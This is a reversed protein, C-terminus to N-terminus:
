APAFALVANQGGFGFSHNLALRTPHPRPATTVLDIELDPNQKVLNATPPVLQHEIALVTCAAEMAAAAGLAHGLVGKTATVAPGGVLLRRILAAEAADNLTTSAGHSNVHDVEALSAGAEEVSTRIAREAQKGQPDPAVIHHADSTMGAGLLRARVRAQRARAHAENELVLLASGEGMVFGDREVDFPRSASEPQGCRRSLARAQAFASITLPMIPAEVGGALAIDCMGARLMTRAVAIATAGSACATAVALSPGVIGFRLAIQSAATSPNTTAALYPSVRESGRDLLVRYQDAWSGIGGTGCGIVIAVRSADWDDCSLDADKVAEDAAVLGFQVFRDLTRSLARGLQVTPDFDPVRCSFDVPLGALKPDPLATSVGSCVRQWTTKTGVGAPTVMGLGTVVVDPATM